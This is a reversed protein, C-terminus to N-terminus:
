ALSIASVPRSSGGGVTSATRSYFASLLEHDIDSKKLKRDKLAGFQLDKKNKYLDYIMKWILTESLVQTYPNVINDIGVFFPAYRGLILAM